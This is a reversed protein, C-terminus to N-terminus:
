NPYISGRGTRASVLYPGNSVFVVLAMLQRFGDFMLGM